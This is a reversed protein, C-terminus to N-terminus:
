WHHSTEIVTLTPLVGPLPLFYNHKHDLLLYQVRSNCLIIYKVLLQAVVRM